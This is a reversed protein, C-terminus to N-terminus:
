GGTATSSEMLSNTESGESASSATDTQANNEVGAIDSAKLYKLKFVQSSMRRDIENLYDEIKKINPPYDIAMISNPQKSLLLKGKASLLDYITSERRATETADNKLPNLVVQAEIYKLIFTRTILDPKVIFFNGNNEIVLDLSKAIAELFQGLSVESMTATITGQVDKDVLLNLKHDYALVKFVDRIDADKLEFSYIQGEKELQRIKMVPNVAASLPIAASEEKKSNEMGATDVESLLDKVQDIPSQAFLAAHMGLILWATLLICKSIAIYFLRSM